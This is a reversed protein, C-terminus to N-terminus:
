PAGSGDSGSETTEPSGPSRSGLVRAPVGGAISYPPLSRSVVAGAGVVCGDGITVGAVVVVGAGIWVDNGIIVDAEAHPQSTIVSDPAFQYNSATVFVQPALIVDTGITICGTHDGAWLACREGINSRAGIWIREGNRLTVNPAIRAGHDMHMKPRERVHSYSYYHVIRLLHLWSRPDTVNRVFASFRGRRAHAHSPGAPVSRTSADREWLAFNGRRVQRRSRAEAITCVLLYAPVSSLLSLDDRVVGMWASRGEPQAGTPGDRLALERNGTYFRTKTRVLDRLTRPPSIVFEASRVSARETEDFRSLVFQDDAIMDPFEDFRKRGAESLAYVGTGVMEREVYPIRTWLRYYSRVPWPRGDLDVRLRPAAVLAAGGDLVRAVERLAVTRVVVDADVYFRPFSTAHQEGVRLARYKSAIETEIVTVPPGWSRAISATADRCGNCVVIIELEGPDADALLNELCRGINAGENHAPVIVSFM